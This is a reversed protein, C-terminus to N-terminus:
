LHNPISSRPLSARYGRRHFVNFLSPTTNEVPGPHAWDGERILLAISVLTWPEAPLTLYPRLINAEVEPVIAQSEVPHRQLPLNSGDLDLVEFFIYSFAIIVCAISIARRLVSSVSSNFPRFAAVM